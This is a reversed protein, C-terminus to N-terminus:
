SQSQCLPRTSWTVLWTGCGGNLAYPSRIGSVRLSTGLLAWLSEREDHVDIWVDTDTSM